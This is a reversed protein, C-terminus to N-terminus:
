RRRFYAHRLCAVACRAGCHLSGQRFDPLVQQADLPDAQVVVEETEAAVRDDRDLYDATRALGSQLQARAVQELVLVDAAQGQRGLRTRSRRFLPRCAALHRQRRYLAPEELPRNGVALVPVLREQQLRALREVAVPQPTGQFAQLRLVIGQAQTEAFLAAGPVLGVGLLGALRQPAPLRPGLLRQQRKAFFGLAAEVEFLPRQQTRQQHVHGVAALAQQQDDVVQRHVPHGPTDQQFVQLTEIGVEVGIEPRTATGVLGPAPVQVFLGARAQVFEVVPLRLQVVSRMRQWAFVRVSGQFVAMLALEDQGQVGLTGPLQQLFGRRGVPGLDVVQQQGGQGTRGAAPAAVGAHQHLEFPVAALVEALGDVQAARHAPEGAQERQAQGRGRVEALRQLRDLLLQAAHRVLADAVAQQAVQSSLLSRGAQGRQRLRPDGEIVQAPEVTLEIPRRQQYRGRFAGAGGLIRAGRQGVPQADFALDVTALQAQVPAEAPFHEGLRGDLAQDIVVRPLQVRQDLMTEVRPMPTHRRRVERQGPKGLRLEIFQGQIRIRHPVDIRQRRHLLAHQKVTKMSRFAVIDVLQAHIDASQVRIAEACGPLGGEIGMLDQAASEEPLVAPRLRQLHYELLRRQLQPQGRWATIRLPLCLSLAFGTEVRGPRRQLAQHQHRQRIPPHVEDIGIVVDQHIAPAVGLQEGLYQLAIRPLLYGSGNPTVAVVDTPQLAAIRHCGLEEPAIPQGGQLHRCAQRALRPRLLRALTLMQAFQIRLRGALQRGEGLTLLDREVGQHLRGPRQEQLPVAPLLRYGEAGGHGSPRRFQWADLRLDTQKDIGQRHDGRRLWLLADRVVQLPHLREVQRQAFVLMRRQVVDLAPGPMAALSQEIADQHELVEGHGLSQALSGGIQLEGRWAVVLLGVVGQRQTDGQTLAQAQLVDIRPAIEVCRVDGFQVTMQQMQQLPHGLGGLCRQALQGQEVGPFALLRQPIPLCRELRQRPAADRRGERMLCRRRRLRDRQYAAVLIEAIGFQIHAGLTQRTAQPRAAHGLFRQHRDSGLAGEVQDDAQQTDELGTGAVQRQIRVVGRLAQRVHQAVAARAPQDALFGQRLPQGARCLDLPQRQLGGGPRRTCIRPRQRLYSALRQGVHDIRGARGALWFSHRDALRREDRVALRCCAGVADARAVALQLEGRDTEIGSGFLEEYGQQCSGPDQEAVGSLPARLMQRILHLPM